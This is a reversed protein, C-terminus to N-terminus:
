EDDDDDDSYDPPEIFKPIDQNEFASQINSPVNKM